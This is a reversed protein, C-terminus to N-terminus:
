IYENELWFKLLNRMRNSPIYINIEKNDRICSRFLWQLLESLAFLDENVEINCINFYNIYDPSLFRNCCYVLTDSDKHKNTARENCPIFRSTYGKGQLHKKSSKFTTWLIQHSRADKINTIYNYINNKLKRRLLPNNKFWNLSLATNKEGILNLNGEYINILQKLKSKDYKKEKNEYPILEYDKLTYKDYEINFMNFYYKMLSGSFLYTMIYCDTFVNFSEPNFNWALLHVKKTKKIEIVTGNSCLNKFDNFKGDYENDNWKIINKDDIMILKEKFLMDYDKFTIDFMNIIDMSEDLILTYGGSKILDLTEKNSVKFLSHTTAINNGKILLQHLNDLKGNGLHKPERFNKETYFKTREKRTGILREIETLFPTVYIFKDNSNYMYNFAWSSKGSGMISDIVKIKIIIM